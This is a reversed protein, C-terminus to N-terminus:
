NEYFRKAEKWVNEQLDRSPSQQQKIKKPVGAGVCSKFVRRASKQINEFSIMNNKLPYVNEKLKKMEEKGPGIAYM